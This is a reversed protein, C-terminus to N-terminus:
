RVRVTGRTGVPIWYRQVVEDRDVLFEESDLVGGNRVIATVSGRNEKGCTVLVRALGLDAARDLSMRLIATAFGQRRATPRVGYGINGGERRLADTLSHRINSVAVVETADRVLWYTSHAVFGDALGMGRSCGDLRSLFADFDDNEFGLVFPVPKEGAAVFERVLSRYSERLMSTPRLLELTRAM